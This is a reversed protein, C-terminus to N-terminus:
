FAYDSISTINQQAEKSFVVEELNSCNYFTNSPIESIQSTNWIVKKLSSCKQFVGYGM